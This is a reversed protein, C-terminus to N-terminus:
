RRGRGARRGAHKRRRAGAGIRSGGRRAKGRTRRRGPSRHAAARSGGSGTRRGRSPAPRARRATAPSVVAAAPEPPAAFSPIPSPARDTPLAAILAMLEALKSRFAAVGYARVSAEGNRKAIAQRYSEDGVLWGVRETLGEVDGKPVLFRENGTATLIEALGGSSYSVVAKGFMMGELATMGFGETMLSPVVVIDMAPYVQHVQESFPYFVFRDEYGAKLVKTRCAVYHGEDVQSGVILFRADPHEAAIPLMADIFQLQGKNPYITAAIFGVVRHEDKWRYLKRLQTRAQPWVGPVLEETEMYPPLVYTSRAKSAGSFPKLVTKSMGVILDCNGSILSVSKDRHPTDYLTEMLLWVTPIGRAFSAIAPLPHVATNVMVVDPREHALLANLTRFAPQRIANEVDQLVHPACTYLSFCLPIDLVVTRIGIAKAKHAIAGLEPVVLVCQYHRVLERLFLSLVKEGGTVLVPNCIHSFVLLKPKANTETM